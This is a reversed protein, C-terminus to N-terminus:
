PSRGFRAASQALFAATAPEAILNANNMFAFGFLGSNVLGRLYDATFIAHVDTDFLPQSQNNPQYYALLVPGYEGLIRTMLQIDTVNSGSSMSQFSEFDSGKLVAAFHEFMSRPGVRAPDDFRAEWGGWCLSVKANPADAHFVDEAARYQDILAQYYATTAPDADWGGHGCPYTQFEAFMSVYLPPGGARGAFMQALKRMDDLFGPSLPYPRGCATGYKTPIQQTATDGAYVVLQLAYGAAYAGPATKSRIGGMWSFDRPSNYWSTLLRVSPLAGFATNRAPDAEAGIGLLIKV